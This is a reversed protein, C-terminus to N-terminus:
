PNCPPLRGGYQERHARLYSRHAAVPDDFALLRHRRRSPLRRRIDQLLDKWLPHRM